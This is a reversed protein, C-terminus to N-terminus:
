DEKERMVLVPVKSLLSIENSVSKHFLTDLFYHQHKVVALLDANNDEVYQNVTEIVAQGAIRKFVHRNDKEIVQQVKRYEQSDERKAASDKTSVYIFHINADFVKALHVVEDLYRVFKNLKKM